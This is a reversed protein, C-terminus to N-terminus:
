SGRKLEEDRVEAEAHGLPPSTMDPTQLADPSIIPQGYKRIKHQADEWHEMVKTRPVPVAGDPWAIGCHPLPVIRGDPLYALVHTGCGDHHFPESVAFIEHWLSDAPYQTTDYCRDDTILLFPTAGTILIRIGTGRTHNYSRGEYCALEKTDHIHGKTERIFPHGYHPDVLADPTYHDVEFPHPETSWGINQEFAFWTAEDISDFDFGAYHWPTSIITNRGTM